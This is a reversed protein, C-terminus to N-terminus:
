LRGRQSSGGCNGEEVLRSCRPSSTSRLEESAFLQRHAARWRVPPRRRGGCRSSNRKDKNENLPVAAGDFRQRHRRVRQTEDRVVLGEVLAAL